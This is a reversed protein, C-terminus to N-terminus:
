RGESMKRVTFAALMFALPEISMVGTFPKVAWDALKVRERELVL